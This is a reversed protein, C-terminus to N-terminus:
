LSVNSLNALLRLRAENLGYCLYSRAYLSHTKDFLRVSTQYPQDSPDSSSHQFAIETSAGGM